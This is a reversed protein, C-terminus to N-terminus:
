TREFKIKNLHRLLRPFFFDFGVPSTELRDASKGVPITWSTSIYKSEPHRGNRNGTKDLTIKPKVNLSLLNCYTMKFITVESSM